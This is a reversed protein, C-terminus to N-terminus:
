LASMAWLNQMQTMLQALAWSSESNKRSNPDHLKITGDDNEGVLVLFHGQTTFDGPGMACIIPNGQELQQRITFEDLPLETASIGM